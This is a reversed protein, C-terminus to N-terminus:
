LAAVGALAGWGVGAVVRHWAAWWVGHARLGWGACGGVKGDGATTAVFSCEKGGPGEGTKTVKGRTSIEIGPLWQLDM